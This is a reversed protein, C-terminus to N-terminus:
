VEEPLEIDPPAGGGGTDNDARPSGGGEPMEFDGVADDLEQNLEAPEEARTEDIEQDIAAIEAAAQQETMTGADVAAILKAREDQLFEETRWAGPENRQELNNDDPDILKPLKPM